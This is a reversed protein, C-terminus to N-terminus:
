VGPHHSNIELIKEDAILGIESLLMHNENNIVVIRGFLHKKEHCNITVFYILSASYDFGIRRTPKRTFM